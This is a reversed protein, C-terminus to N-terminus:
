VYICWRNQLEKLSDELKPSAFIFHKTSYQSQREIYEMTDKILIQKMSLKSYDSYNGRQLKDFDNEFQTICERATMNCMSNIFSKPLLAGCYVKSVISYIKFWEVNDFITDRKANSVEWTVPISTNVRKCLMLPDRMDIAIKYQSYLNDFEEDYETSLLNNILLTNVPFGKHLGDTSSSMRILMDYSKAFELLRSFRYDSTCLMAIKLKEVKIQKCKNLKKSRDYIKADGMEPYLHYINELKFVNELEGLILYKYYYVSKNYKISLQTLLEWNVRCLNPVHKYTETCLCRDLIKCVNYEFDEENKNHHVYFFKTIGYVILELDTGDYINLDLPFRKTLKGNSVKYKSKIYNRYMTILIEYFKVLEEKKINVNPLDIMNYLM